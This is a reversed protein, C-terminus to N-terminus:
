ILNPVYIFAASMLLKITKTWVCEFHFSLLISEVQFLSSEVLM